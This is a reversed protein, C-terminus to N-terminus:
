RRFVKILSLNAITAVTEYQSDAAQSNIENITEQATFIVDELWGLLESTNVSTIDELSGDSAADHLRDLTEFLTELHLDTINREKNTTMVTLHQQTM